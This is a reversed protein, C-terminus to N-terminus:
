RSRKRWFPVGFLKDRIQTWSKVKAFADDAAFGLWKARKTLALYSMTTRTSEKLRVLHEPTCGNPEVGLSRMADAFDQEPYILEAAFVEAGIEIPELENARACFSLKSGGDALHHKLEHAMTFIAPDDPLDTNIVITPGCEDNFYAGRVAKGLPWKDLRVGLKKIIRRLDSRTVRPSSLGHELRVRRALEKLKEYYHSRSM